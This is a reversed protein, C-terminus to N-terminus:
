NCKVLELYKIVVKPVEKKGNEYDWVDKKSRGLRLALQEQTLNIDLRIKKFEEKTM